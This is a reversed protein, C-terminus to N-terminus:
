CGRRLRALGLLGLGLLSLTAPEPIAAPTHKLADFYGRSSLAGDITNRVGYVLTYIDAASATFSWHTWPGDWFDPNGSGDAYFLTSVLNLASDYLEVKAGDLYPAHDRWDFAVWGEIMDGAGLSFSQYVEQWANAAGATLSLFYSGEVPSYTVPILFDGLASTVVSAVGGSLNTTWGTLDGTEFGPNIPAAQVGTWSLSFAFCTLALRTRM